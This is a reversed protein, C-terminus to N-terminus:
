RSASGTVEAYVAELFMDTTWPGITSGYLGDYELSIRADRIEDLSRGDAVMDRMRDRIITLMDRFEVVDSENSIRGHGPIVRTGRMQNIEPITIDIIENAADLIGQLSGEAHWM